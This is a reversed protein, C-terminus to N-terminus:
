SKKTKLRGQKCTNKGKVERKENRKGRKEKKKWKKGKEKLSGGKDRGRRMNKEGFTMLQYEGGRIKKRALIYIVTNDENTQAGRKLM